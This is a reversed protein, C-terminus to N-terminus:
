PWKWTRLCHPPNAVALAAASRSGADIDVLWLGRPDAHELGAGLGTGLCKLVAETRVWARLLEREREPAILARIRTGERDSLIAWAIAAEDIPRRAVEVDIGVTNDIAFAYLAVADSHSINFQLRSANEIPEAKRPLLTPKGHEGTTIEVTHPDITLYRGLLVRLITRACMWRRRDIEFRFREARALEATSLVEAEDLPSDLDARWVHVIGPALTPQEPASAWQATPSSVGLDTDGIGRRCEKSPM